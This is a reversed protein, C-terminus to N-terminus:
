VDTLFSVCYKAFEQPREMVSIHAADLTVLKSHTISAHIDNSLEPPTALDREGAIVLVPCHIRPNTRRYDIAAIAACTRAYAQPDNALLIETVRAVDAANSDRYGPTFWRALAMEVVPAMGNRGVAEIRAQWLARATDDYRMASNAVVISKILYPYRAALAQAVMGGMSLGIFHVPGGGKAFVERLIVSAADDVLEDISFDGASKQSTGQGRHDYAIVNFKKALVPVLSEWMTHNFGLAHSLVVTQKGAGIEGTTVVHLLPPTTGQEKLVSAVAHIATNAAPVGCYIAGQHV